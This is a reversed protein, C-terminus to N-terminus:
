SAKRAKATKMTAARTQAAATVAADFEGAQVAQDLAALAAARLL